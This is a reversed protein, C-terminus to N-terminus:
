VPPLNDMLLEMATGMANVLFNVIGDIEEEYQEYVFFSTFALVLGVGIAETLYHSSIVKLFYLSVAVKFFLNWDEGQALARTVQVVRNWMCAIATVLNTMDVESIEFSSSSIREVTFGLINSPLFAHGLLTVTVLLLLKAASSTFTRGSFFFWYYLLVLALFCTFTKKEDRWLLINAVAGAGAGGYICCAPLSSLTPTPICRINEQVELSVVPSYGIHKQAASCNFTSTRLALRVVGHLPASGNLKTSAMKAHMWKVLLVTYWVLMAPLKIMPRQYGLDELIRSVFEWFKVPELNTIFFAKGSVSVMRSDLAEDACILAHAVNEVYTFDSMNNGSGIIFKAWGFKAQNVLFPIIETDGPGFVNSPRLACTLLGDIDNAFLFLAEAQAKLDTLMDEFKWAYLLSEDGNHIDYSGDFVVDASSNYILRKVKCERCANIVNKAGQVILTYCGYFDHTSSTGAEVFFVVSSGEIANIIQPKNRVDVHFYSARGTSLAQPLLSNTESPDLQLSQASDAIRVIRDDLKLLRLVLSRGIFGRGGIVVCTRLNM